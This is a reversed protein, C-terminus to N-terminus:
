RKWSKGAENKIADLSIFVVGLFMIVMFIIEWTQELSVGEKLKEEKRFTGVLMLFFVCLLLLIIIQSSIQTIAAVLQSSAVVLFGVVFSVMANLGKKTKNNETGLVRTRELISFMITFTLLFPLIVDYVGLSRFFELVNSLITEAM